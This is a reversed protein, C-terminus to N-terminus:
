DSQRRRRLVGMGAAALLFAITPEPVLHLNDFEVSSPTATVPGAKTGITFAMNALDVQKSGLLYGDVYANGTMAASDYALRLTHWAISEDGFDARGYTWGYGSTNRHWTYYTGSNFYVCWFGSDQGNGPSTAATLWAMSNGQPVRFDVSVDFDAKPFTSASRLVADTYQAPKVPVAFSLIGNMESVSSGPIGLQQTWWGGIVGDGFDDDFAVAKQSGSLAVLLFGMIVLRM